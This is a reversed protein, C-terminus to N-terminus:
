VCYDVRSNDLRALLMRGHASRGEYPRSSVADCHGFLGMAPWDTKGALLMSMFWLGAARLYYDPDQSIPPPLRLPESAIVNSLLPNAGASSIEASMAELLIEALADVFSRRM